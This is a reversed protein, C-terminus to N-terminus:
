EFTDLIESKAQVWAITYMFVITNNCLQRFKFSMVKKKPAWKVGVDSNLPALHACINQFCYNVSDSM